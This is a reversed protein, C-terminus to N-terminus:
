LEARFSLVLLRFHVDGQVAQVMLDIQNGPVEPVQSTHFIGFREHDLFYHLHFIDDLQRHTGDLPVRWSVAKTKRPWRTAPCPRATAGGNSGFVYWPNPPRALPGCCPLRPCPRM